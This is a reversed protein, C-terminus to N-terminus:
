VGPLHAASPATADSAVQQLLEGIQRGYRVSSHRREVVIRAAHAIRGREKATSSLVRELARALSEIDRPACLWGTEGDNILESLGYVDTALVPTEWAMAELVTRPLSEIDSACVLIDSLGYWRQVDPTIPILDIRDSGTCAAVCAELTHSYLDDRGGVIVLHATPHSLAVLDFAQVLPIQAKRPEVTGVCLVVEADPAISVARRAAAMDFRSRSADIPRLDLGYPINLRRDPPVVSEYLRETAAAEFIVYAADGLAKEARLRIAPDLNLWLLSTKLSEHIAWIVPIGLHGAVEAGPFALVTATNIFAIDFDRAGAWVALEEVRGIHSSVDDLSGM